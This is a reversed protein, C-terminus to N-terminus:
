YKKKFKIEENEKIRQNILNLVLLLRWKRYLPSVFSNHILFFISLNVWNHLKQLTRSFILTKLFQLKLM